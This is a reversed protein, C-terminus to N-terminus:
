NYREILSTEAGGGDPYDRVTEGVAECVGSAACTVGMLQNDSSNAPNQTPVSTLKSNAILVALTTRSPSAGVAICQGAQPCSVSELQDGTGGAIPEISWAGNWHEVLPTPGNNSYRSGVATCDAAARCAVGTFVGDPVTAITSPSWAAGNWREAIAHTVTGSINSSGVAMCNSASACSVSDLANPPTGAPRPVPVASWTSGNWQEAFSRLSSGSGQSGVVICRTASPCAVSDLMIGNGTVAKANSWTSGSLKLAMPHYGKSNLTDGVAICQTASPCSVGHLLVEDGANHPFGQRSWVSGNWQEIYTGVAICAKTTACAVDGLYGGATGTPTVATQVTWGAGSTHEILSRLTGNAFDSTGGVATCASAVCSVSSLVNTGVAVPSPAAKVTWTTGNWREILAASKDANDQHGVAICSAAGTCGIGLLVSATAGPSASSQKVWTTGNYQEALTSAGDRGVATCSKAATCAVGSLAADSSTVAGSQLTWAGNFHELLTTSQQTNVNLVSGVAECSATAACSVAAFSSDGNLPAPMDVSQWVSGTWRSSIPQQGNAGVAICYTASTCSVGTFEGTFGTPLTSWTSGNSRAAFTHTGSSGVAICASWRCDVALLRTPLGSTPSPTTQQSWVSGDWHEALPRESLADDFDGVATCDSGTRCSIASLTSASLGSPRSHDQITFGPVTVASASPVCAGGVM